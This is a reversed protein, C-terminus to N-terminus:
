ETPEDSPATKSSKKLAHKTTSKKKKHRGAAEADTRVLSLESTAANIEYKFHSLFSLGLTAQATTNAAPLIECSVNKVAFSGVRVSKLLMHKAEVKSGDALVVTTTEPAADVHLGADVAVQHPLRLTTVNADVLMECPKVGNITVTAYYSREKERLPVKGSVIKLELAELRKLASDFSHSPALKHSTHAAENWEKIAAAVERDHNLESYEAILRDALTRAELVQKLYAQRASTEDKHSVEASKTSKKEAQQIRAIEQNNAAIQQNIQQVIQGRFAFGVKNMEQLRENLVVNQQKLAEIQANAEEEGVETSQEESTAAGLKRKLTYAASVSKPFETEGLVTFGSRSARIGKGSLTAKASAEDGRAVAVASLVLSGGLLVAGCIAAFRDKRM